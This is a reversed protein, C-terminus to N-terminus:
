KVDVITMMGAEAHELIHCHNAWSGKGLPVLAIDVTEQRKILVTDRFYPENVPVGNRAIVKFFQGHLHMPHLRYSENVFRIKNFVGHRLEIPDYDPFAKGNITWELGYKGGQRANLIYTKDPAYELASTWDPIKTNTPYSFDDMELTEGEVRINGLTNSYRTFQDRITYNNRYGDVPIKVDVDIRNGPSLEFGNAKVPEKTTMGDVAVINAELSGFNLDYVRGNSTNIIRILAREGPQMFLTESPSGNVTITNGWRGDHMLDHRTVFNENIQNDEVLRWDDLVWSVDQNYQETGNGEVILLGYLGREMQEATRVHPHYWFTGADKPTFEYVFTEGPKIAEQTVGPVGDMANPVRVGHWHITTEQPLENKFTIKLTDGLKARITPGPIQENYAFVETTPEGFLSLETELATLEYEVINGSAEIEELFANNFESTLEARLAKNVEKEEYSVLNPYLYRYALGLTLLLLFTGLLIYITKLKIKIAM